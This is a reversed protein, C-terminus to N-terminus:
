SANGEGGLKLFVSRGDHTLQVGDQSVKVVKYMGNILQGEKVIHRAEGLRIIAVNTRGTIIGTLQFSPLAPDANEMGAGGPAEVPMPSIPPVYFPLPDARSIRVSPQVSQPPPAAAVATANSIAPSFPDRKGAQVAAEAPVVEVTANGAGSEAAPSEVDPSPEADPGRGIPQGAQPAAATQTQAATPASKAGTIKMVVYGACLAVLVGLIVMQPVQKKDKM